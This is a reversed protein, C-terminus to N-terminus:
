HKFTEGPMSFEALVRGWSHRKSNPPEHYTVEITGAFRGDKNRKLTLFVEGQPDFCQIMDQEELYGVRAVRREIPTIGMERPRDSNFREIQRNLDAVPDIAMAADAPSAKAELRSSQRSDIAGHRNDEPLHQQNCGGALATVAVFTSCFKTM